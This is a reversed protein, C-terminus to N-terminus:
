RPRAPPLANISEQTIKQLVKQTGELRAKAQNFADILAPDAGAFQLLDSSVNHLAMAAGYAEVTAALLRHTVTHSQVSEMYNKNLALAHQQVQELEAKLQEVTPESM